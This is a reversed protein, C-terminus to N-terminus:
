NTVEKNMSTYKAYADKYIEELSNGGMEKINQVFSDYESLPKSGFIMNISNETVYTELDALIRRIEDSQEDTFTLSIGYNTEFRDTITEKVVRDYEAVEESLNSVGDDRNLRQLHSAAVGYVAGANVSGESNYSTYIHPLFKKKGDIVEFESGEKGWQLLTAGEDTYLYNIAKLLREPDKTKSSVAYASSSGVVQSTNIRMEPSNKTTLPLMLQLDFVSDEPHLLKYADEEMKARAPWDITFVGTKNVLKEEWQETSATFFEKDLLDKGHLTNLDTVMEKYGDYMPAYIWRDSVNDYIMGMATKYMVGFATLSNIQNRSVVGTIEPHIAKIKELVLTLEEMTKPMECGAEKVLDARIIPVSMYEPTENIKPIVYLHGDDALMSTYARVDKKVYNQFDPMIGEYEDVSVLAKSMGLKKATFLDLPSVIDPLEDAAILLKVRENLSSATNSQVLKLDINFKEKWAKTIYYESGDNNESNNCVMMEVAINANDSSKENGCSSALSAVSLIAAMLILKKKM